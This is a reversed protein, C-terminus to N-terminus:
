ERVSGAELLVSVGGVAEWALSTLPSLKRHKAKLMDRTPEVSGRVLSLISGEVNLTTVSKWQM